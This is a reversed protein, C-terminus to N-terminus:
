VRHRKVSTKPEPLVGSQPWNKPDEIPLPNEENGSVFLYEYLNTM